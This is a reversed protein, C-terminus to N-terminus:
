LIKYKKFYLICTGFASLASVSMLVTIYIFSNQKTPMYNANDLNMGMIGSVASIISAAFSVTLMILEFKLIQNRQADMRMNFYTESDLISANIQDAQVKVLGSRVQHAYILMRLEDHSLAFSKELTTMVDDESIATELTKMLSDINNSIDTTRAKFYKLKSFKNPDLSTDLAHLAPTLSQDLQLLKSKIRLGHNDLIADMVTLLFQGDESKQIDKKEDTQPLIFKVRRSIEDSISQREVNDDVILCYKNYCIVGWGGFKAVLCNTHYILCSNSSMASPITMNAAPDLIRLDYFSIDLETFINDADTQSLPSIDGKRDIIKWRTMLVSPRRAKKQYM